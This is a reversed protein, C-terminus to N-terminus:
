EPVAQCFGSHFIRRCRSTIVEVSNVRGRTRQTSNCVRSGCDDFRVSRVPVISRYNRLYLATNFVQPVKSYPTLSDAVVSLHIGPGCRGSRFLRGRSQPIPWHSKTGGVEPGSRCFCIPEFRQQDMLWCHPGAKSSRCAEGLKVIRRLERIELASQLL